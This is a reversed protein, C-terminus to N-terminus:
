KGTEVTGPWSLMGGVLNYVNNFGKNALFQAASGSRNGSRCVLIIEAEKDLVDYNKKLEGLPLLIAGPIRGENYEWEERVDIITINEQELKDLVQLPSIEGYPLQKGCGTITILAIMLIIVVAKSNM